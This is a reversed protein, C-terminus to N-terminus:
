SFLQGQRQRIRKAIGAAKLEENTMNLETMIRRGQDSNIPWFGASRLRPFDTCNTCLSFTWQFNAVQERIHITKKRLSRLHDEIRRQEPHTSSKLIRKCIAPSFYNLVDLRSFCDSSSMLRLTDFPPVGYVDSYVLGFIRRGSEQVSARLRRLLPAFTRKHDGVITEFKCDSQPHKRLLEVARAELQSLKRRSKEMFFARTPIGAEALIRLAIIPSGDFGNVSGSESTMDIYIYESEIWDPNRAIISGVMRSQLRMFSGFHDQKEATHVSCGGNRVSPM